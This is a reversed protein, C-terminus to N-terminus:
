GRRGKGRTNSGQRSMAVGGLSSQRSMPVGGDPLSLGKSGSTTGGAPSDRVNSDKVPLGLAERLNDPEERITGAMGVYRGQHYPIAVAELLNRLGSGADMHAGPKHSQDYHKFIGMIQMDSSIDDQSLPVPYNQDATRPYPKLYQQPVFPPMKPPEQKHILDLNGPLEFNAIAELGLIKDDVFNQNNNNAAAAGGGRTSRTAHSIQREMLPASPVSENDDDEDNGFDSEEPSSGNGNARNRLIFQHAAVAAQNYHLSLEKDTFLKDLSYVPGNQKAAARAKESQWLATTNNNDIGRRAPVPSGDDDGNNRKRKKNDYLSLDEADKRLRTARKGHAGGPSAPITLSFQTPNLLLANSDSIELVEKEKTLRNKKSNLTNILRDRM